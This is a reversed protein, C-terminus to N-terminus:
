IITTTRFSTRTPLTLFYLKIQNSNSNIISTKQITM